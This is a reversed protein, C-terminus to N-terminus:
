VSLSGFHPENAPNKGTNIFARVDWKRNQWSFYAALDQAIEMANGYEQSYGEKVYPLLAYRQGSSVEAFVPLTMKQPFSTVSGPVLLEEKGVRTIPLTVTRRDVKQYGYPGRRCVHGVLCKPGDMLPSVAKGARGEITRAMAVHWDTLLIVPNAAAPGPRSHRQSYETM